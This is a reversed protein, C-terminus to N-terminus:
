TSNQYGKVPNTGANLLDGDTRIFALFAVSLFEAYREDMRILTFDRVDRILYKSLDGFIISKASITMSSMDQNIVIPSGFITDPAASVLNPLWLPRNSSDVIQKIKSLSNDNMMFTGPRRYSPDVSHYLALLNAYSISTSNNTTAQTFTAANVIGNPTGTGTGTTFHTHSPRAVREGLIRGLMQPLNIASDQMLEVSVVVEKSTYKYADLVLQSFTADLKTATTNEGILSGVNTTDNVTPIPLPGGTDTRLVTAVQRMGGYELLAIEVERMAADQISYGGVSTSAQPGTMARYEDHQQQWIQRAEPTLGTLARVALKYPLQSSGLDLGVRKAAMQMHTPVVQSKAGSIFWGRVADQYDKAGAMLRSEIPGSPTANPQTVRASIENVTREAQEQRDILQLHKTLKEVDEHIANFKREEEPTLTERKQAHVDALIQNAENVLQGKKTLLDQKMLTDGKAQESPVGSVCFPTALLSCM